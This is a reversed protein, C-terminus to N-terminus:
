TFSYYVELIKPDLFNFHHNFKGITGKPHQHCWNESYFARYYILSIVCRCSTLSAFLCVHSCGHGLCMKTCIYQKQRLVQIDDANRIPPATPTDIPAPTLMTVASQSVQSMQNNDMNEIPPAAPTDITTPALVSMIASSQSDQPAVIHKLASLLCARVTLAM